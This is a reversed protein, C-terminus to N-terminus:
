RKAGLLSYTSIAGIGLIDAVGSEEFLYRDQLQTYTEPSVQIKGPQANAQMRSALNVADGWLDYTIKKLGIVGAIAWGSSLGVRLQFPHGLERQLQNATAQMRLAIEACAQLRDPKNVHVGGALIYVDRVTKIKELEYEEVLQDFNSFLRAVLNLIEAPELQRTLATFGHIDAVVVAVDDVRDAIMERRDRLRDAITPPLLSALLRETEQRQHRLASEMRRRDTVDRVTGEYYIIRGKADKVARVNESIWIKSGDKRYIRSEAGVIQGMQQLYANLGARRSPHVYLQNGINTMTQILDAPSDYGYIRALAPNASIYHGDTTSQFIGDISSEIISQYRGELQQNEQVQQQLKINQEELRFQLDRIKLQHQVRVLVEAVQFPKSIFDAGGVAFAKVKSQADNLASTFIIPIDDTEPNEKVQQCIQYGSTGAVMADLLILDPQQTQAMVLADQATQAVLVRYTQQGLAKTLQAIDLPTDDVVLITGISQTEVPEYGLLNFIKVETEQLQQNHQTGQSALTQHYLTFRELRHLNRSRLEEAPYLEDLTANLDSVPDLPYTETASLPQLRDLNQRLIKRLYYVTPPSLQNLEGSQTLNAEFDQRPYVM